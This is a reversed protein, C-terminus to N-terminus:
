LKLIKGQKIRYGLYGSVEKSPEPVPNPCRLLFCLMYVSNYKIANCDEKKRCMEKCGDLHHDNTSSWIEPCTENRWIKSLPGEWDGKICSVLSIKKMVRIM